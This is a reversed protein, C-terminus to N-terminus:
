KNEYWSSICSNCTSILSLKEFCYCIANFMPWLILDVTISKEFPTSFNSCELFFNNLQYSTDSLQSWRLMLNSWNNREKSVRKNWQPVAKSQKWYNWVLIKLYINPFTTYWHYWTTQCMAMIGSLVRGNRGVRKKRPPPHKPLVLPCTPTSFIIKPLHQGLHIFPPGRRPTNEFRRRKKKKKPIVDVKYEINYDQWQSGVKNRIPKKKQLEMSSEISHGLSNQKVEQGQVKVLLKSRSRIQGLYGEVQGGNWFETKGHSHYFVSVCVIDYSNCGYRWLCPHILHTDGAWRFTAQM